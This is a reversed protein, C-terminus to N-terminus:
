TSLKKDISEVRTEWKFHKAILARAEGSMKIRKEESDLLSNIAEIMGATDNAVLGHVGDKFGPICGYSGKDAVIPIGAAMSEVVKNILGYNKFVPSVSVAKNKYVDCVDEVYEIHVVDTADKIKELLEVKAGKGVVYFISDQHKEKVGPWVDVLLWEVIKSYGRLSGVFFIDKNKSNFQNVFLSDNVGNPLIIIKSDLGSSSIKNIYSKDEKSQVQIVDYKNLIHSEIRGARFSRLWKVTLKLKEKLSGGKIFLQKKSQKFVATICDNIGAVFQTKDGTHERMIDVVDLISDDSVWVADFQNETFIEKILSTDYKRGIHFFYNGKLENLIRRSKKQKTVETVWLNDVIKRNKEIDEDTSEYWADNLYLLSVNHEKSLGALYNYTPITVGNRPPYPLQNLVFLINM